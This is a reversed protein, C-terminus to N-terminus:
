NSRVWLVNYQYIFHCVPSGPGVKLVQFAVFEPSWESTDEHCVAAAEIKMGDKGVLSVMYPVTSPRKHCIFVTYPYSSRHCSIASREDGLKKLGLVSYSQMSTDKPIVSSLATVKNGLNAAVYDIMSELSTACYNENKMTENMQCREITEKITGAAPSEKKVGFLALIQDLKGSSFPISEVVHRPMFASEGLSKPFHLNMNQGVSLDKESFFLSTITDDNIVREETSGCKYINITVAEPLVTSGNVIKTGHQVSAKIAKPMPTNGLKMKWYAEVTSDAAHSKAVLYLLFFAVFSLRASEM